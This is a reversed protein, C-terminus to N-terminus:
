LLFLADEFLQDEISINNKLAKIEIDNYWDNNNKIEVIRSNIKSFMNELISLYDLNFTTRKQMAKRMIKEAQQPNREFRNLMDNLIIKQKESSLDAVSNAWGKFITKLYLDYNDNSKERKQFPLVLSNLIIDLAQIYNKENYLIAALNIRVEKFTPNVSLAELYFQKAKTHNGTIEYSSALNNLVHEHYPHVNYAEKFDKLALNYKQQNFYVVGRYWLLPTSTNELEYYTKNYAKDINEVVSTWDQEAQSNIANTAYVEGQYRVIAVYIVFFIIGLFSFSLWKPLLEKKYGTHKLKGAVIIAALFFFIINHSFRELPFDFFSIFSFGIFTAFLLSYFFTSERNNKHLYYSDRLLILFILIFSIGPILGGETFVWLFDNHPRQAYNTGFSGFYLGYKPIKLKWNGPGVGLLPNESILYFSSKYLKYRLSNKYDLATHIEHVLADYRDTYKLITFFLSLGVIVSVLLLSLQKLKIQSKYVIAITIVFLGLAIFVARTQTQLIILLMCALLAISLLRWLKKGVRILYIVFPLTLFLISSLLNKHGMTGSINDFAINRQM